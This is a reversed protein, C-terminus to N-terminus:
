IIVSCIFMHNGTTLKKLRTIVSTKNEITAKVCIRVTKLGRWHTLLTFAASTETKFQL